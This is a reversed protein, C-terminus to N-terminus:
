PSPTPSTPAELGFEKAVAMAARFYGIIFNIEGLKKLREEAEAADKVPPQKRFADLKDEYDALMQIQTDVLPQLIAKQDPTLNISDPKVGFYRKFQELKGDLQQARYRQVGPVAIATLVGIIAIVVLFELFSFGKENQM